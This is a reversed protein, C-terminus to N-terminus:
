MEHDEDALPSVTKPREVTHHEYMKKKVKGGVGRDGDTRDARIVSNEAFNSSQNQFM